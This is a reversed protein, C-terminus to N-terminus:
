INESRLEQQQCQVERSFCKIQFCASIKACGYSTFGDEGRWVQIPTKKKTGSQSQGPKVVM